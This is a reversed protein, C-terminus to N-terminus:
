AGCRVRHWPRSRGAPPQRCPRPRCTGSWPRGPPRRAGASQPQPRCSAVARDAPTAPPRSRADRRIRIGRPDPRPRSPRAQDQRRHRSRPLSGRVLAPVWLPHPRADGVAWEGAPVQQGDCQPGPQRLLSPVRDPQGEPEISVHPVPGDLVIRDQTLGQIESPRAGTNITMLMIGRAEGNLGALAGPALLKEKIWEDSWPVRKRKEKDPLMYGSLPPNLPLRKKAIVFRLVSGIHTLDKNASNATLGEAEIKSEWWGVFDLMDDPTIDDLARDGVVEIFNKFAKIRPNRWRRIQDPSMDKTASRTAVEWFIDLARSMTIKPAAAGGLVAAAEIMDPNGPRSKAEVHEVRGVLDPTPLEAVEKAHLFRFGRKAALERAAAFLKEADRTDGGLKAEWAEIMDQWVKPAKQRAVHESDTHLSLYVYDKPEVRRYRRPVRRRIHWTSDRKTLGSIRTM